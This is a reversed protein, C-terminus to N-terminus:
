LYGKTQLYNIIKNVSQEETEIATFCIIEPNIPEEYKQHIGTFNLIENNLAKKYMGKVDRKICVALPCSLYIEIFGNKSLEKRAKERVARIPSVLSIIIFNNKTSKQKALNIVRRNHEERDKESFGLDKSITKRLVDGDYVEVEKGLSALKNKLANSITTKGSCPLGTFWLVVM